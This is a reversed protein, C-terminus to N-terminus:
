DASDEGQKLVHEHVPQPTYPDGPKMFRHERIAYDQRSTM